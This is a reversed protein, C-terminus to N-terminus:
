MHECGFFDHQCCPNWKEDWKSRQERPCPCSEGCFCLEWQGPKSCLFSEITELPRQWGWHGEVATLWAWTSVQMLALPICVRLDPTLFGLVWKFNGLYSLSEFCCVQSPNLILTKNTKKPFLFEERETKRQMMGLDSSHSVMTVTFKVM